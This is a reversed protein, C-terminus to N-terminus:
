RGWTSRMKLQPHIWKALLELFPPPALDTHSSRLCRRNLLFCTLCMWTCVRESVCACVSLAQLEQRAILIGIHRVALIVASHSPILPILPNYLLTIAEPIVSPNARNDWEWERGRERLGPGTQLRFAELHPVKLYFSSSVVQPFSHPHPSHLFVDPSGSLHLPPSSLLLFCDTHLSVYHLYTTFFFFPTPPPSLPPPPPPSYPSPPAILPFLTCLSLRPLSLPSVSSPLSSSIPPAIGQQSPKVTM